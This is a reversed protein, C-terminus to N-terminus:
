NQRHYFLLYANNNQIDEKKLVLSPKREDNFLYWKSNIRNKVLSVYHGFERRGLHINVAFLDYKSKNKYPSDNHIYKSIDLDYLPYNINKIIKKDNTFRKLHIILIKPSSWLLLRKIGRNKVGCIECKCM